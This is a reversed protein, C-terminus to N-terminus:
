SNLKLTWKAVKKKFPSGEEYPIQFGDQTSKRIEDDIITIMGNLPVACVKVTTGIYTM